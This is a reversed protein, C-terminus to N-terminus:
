VMATQMIEAHSGDSCTCALLERGLNTCGATNCNGASDSKVGCSPCVYHPM